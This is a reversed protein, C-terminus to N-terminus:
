HEADGRLYDRYSNMLADYLLMGQLEYGEATFHIRDRSFLRNAYWKGAAGKGGGVQFLDWYAVGNEAAFRAITNRVKGINGNQVYSRSVRRYNEAPVTLLLPVGPNVRRLGDVLMKMENYFMEGNFRSTSAENTGMSLIILAPELDATERIMEPQGAYHTYCASNVGVSHYLIGNKGNELSFGYFVPVDYGDEGVAAYLSVSDTHQMLPIRTLYARATDPCYSDIGFEEGERLWPAKDHHFATVSNFSYEISDTTDKQLTQITFVVEKSDTAIAIGGLGVPYEVTRQVCKSNNWEQPSTIKYDNPENTKALKLPAIFGRGANGFNLQFLRRVTAPFVGAQIHSDGIHLVSVVDPLLTDSVSANRKQLETLKDYFVTMISDPDVIRNSDLQFFAYKQLRSTDLGSIFLTTDSNKPSCSIAAHCFFLFCFVAAIKVWDKNIM